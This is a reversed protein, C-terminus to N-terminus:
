GGESTRGAISNTIRAFGSLDHNRIGPRRRSDVTWRGGGVKELVYTFM